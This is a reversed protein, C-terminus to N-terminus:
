SSEETDIDVNYRPSQNMKQLLLNIEKKLEIIRNERGLTVAHWRRLEDM